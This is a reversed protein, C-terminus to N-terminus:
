EEHFRLLQKQAEGDEADYEEDDYSGDSSSSYKGEEKMETIM